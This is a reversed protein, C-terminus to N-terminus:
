FEVDVVTTARVPKGDRLEPRFVWDRLDAQAMPWLRRPGAVARAAEVRGSADVTAVLRVKGHPGFGAFALSRKVPEAPDITRPGPNACLFPVRIETESASPAFQWQRVADLAAGRLAEPGSVPDATAVRGDDAVTVRLTVTGEIGQALAAPPYIAPPSHLAVPEASDSVDVTTAEDAVYKSPPPLLLWVVVLLYLAPLGAGVLRTM